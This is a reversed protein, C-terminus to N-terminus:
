FLLKYLVAGAVSGMVYSDDRDACSACVEAITDVIDLATHNRPATPYATRCKQLFDKAAGAAVLMREMADMTADATSYTKSVLHPIKASFGSWLASCKSFAEEFKESLNVKGRHVRKLVAKSELVFPVGQFRLMLMPIVWLSTYGVESNKIVAGPYAFFSTGPITIPDPSVVYAYFARDTLGSYARLAMSEVPMKEIIADMIETNPIDAYVSSVIGRVFHVPFDDDVARSTRFNYYGLAHKRINLEAAQQELEVPIFWKERTGLLSLLQQRSWKSFMYQASTNGRILKIGVVDDEGPLHESMRAIEFSLAHDRSDIDYILDPLHLSANADVDGKLETLSMLRM